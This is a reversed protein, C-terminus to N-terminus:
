FLPEGKLPTSFTLEDSNYDGLLQVEKEEIWNAPVETNIETGGVWIPSYSKFYEEGDRHYYVGYGDARCFDGNFKVTLIARGDYAIFVAEKNGYPSLHDQVFFARDDLQYWVPNSLQLWKYEDSMELKFSVGNESRELNEIDYWSDIYLRSLQYMNVCHCMQITDIEEEPLKAYEYNNGFVTM